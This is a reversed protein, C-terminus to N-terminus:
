VVSILNNPPIIVKSGKTLAFKVLDILSNDKLFLDLSRHAVNKPVFIPINNCCFTKKNNGRPKPHVRKLVDGAIAIKKALASPSSRLQFVTAKVIISIM